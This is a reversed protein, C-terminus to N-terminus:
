LWQPSTYLLEEILDVGLAESFLHGQGYECKLERVMKLHENKEVGEAVVMMKLRHALYVIIRVIEDSEDDVGMWKVFSQDIKLIDVPFHRLYSLSSYGTGFDDMCIQFNMAKLKLLMINASQMDNMLASETIEFRITNTDVGNNKVVAEIREALEPHIFQVTSLNINVTLPPDSPFMDQWIKLQRSALDIIHFGVPIILGTEEMFPIFEDPLIIGREPHDWRCLAEFGVIRGTRMSIIPQYYPFFERNELARIIEDTLRNIEDAIASTIKPKVSNEIDGILDADEWREVLLRNQHVANEFSSLLFSMLQRDGLEVRNRDGGYAIEFGVIESHVDHERHNTIIEEIRSLLYKKECPLTIHYNMGMRLGKIFYDVEIRSPSVVVVPIDIVTGEKGMLEAIDEGNFDAHLISIILDPRRHNIAPLLKEREEVLSVGYGNSILLERITNSLSRNNSLLLIYKMNM